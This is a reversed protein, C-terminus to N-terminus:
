AIRIELPIVTMNQPNQNQSKKKSKNSIGNVNPLCFLQLVLM